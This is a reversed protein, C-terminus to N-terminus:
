GRAKRRAPRGELGIDYDDFDSTLEATRRDELMRELRRWAPDGQPKGGRRRAQDLDRIVRDVDVDEGGELIEDAEEDDFEETEPKENM